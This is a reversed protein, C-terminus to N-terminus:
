GGYRGFRGLRFDRWGLWMMRLKETKEPEFLILRFFELVFRFRDRLVFGQFDAEYEKWVQFRNRTKYYKRLPSHTIVSLSGAGIRQGVTHELHAGGAQLVKYGRRRLRLCYEIDVFDIFFDERFPGTERYSDLSLLCGSTMPALVERCPIEAHSPVGTKALHLPSVMGVGGQQGLCSMMQQVMEPAAKSDQDMTLLVDCGSAVAHEAGINLARAVGLNGDNALYVVRDDSVLQEYIGASSAPSNDVAFLIDVQGLYSHVNSLVEETPNYLVVVGATKHQYAM